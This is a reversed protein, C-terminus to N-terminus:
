VSYKIKRSRLYKNIKGRLGSSLDGAIWTTMDEDDRVDFSKALQLYDLDNGINSFVQFIANEDTGVGKMAAYLKNALDRYKSLPHSLKMGKKKLIAEEDGKEARNALDREKAAAEEKWKDTFGFIKNVIMFVILLLGGYILLTKITENNM